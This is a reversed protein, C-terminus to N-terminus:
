AVAEQQRESRVEKVRGDELIVTNGGIPRVTEILVDCKHEKALRRVHAFSEDDLLSGDRIWILRLGPNRFLCYAFGACVKQATSAQEWPSGLLRIEGDGFELGPIPLSAKAIAAERAARRADMAETLAVAQADLDDAASVHSARETAKAVNVNAINAAEIQAAIAATDIPDPLTEANDLQAQLEDAQKTAEDAFAQGQVFLLQVADAATKTTEVKQAVLADIQTQIQTLRRDREVEIRATEDAIKAGIRQPDADARLEAIKVAQAERRAVRSERQTNLTGAERLQRVLAQVDIAAAPTDSPVVILDAAARSRAADRKVNTREAFDAADDRMSKAFDVDPILEQFAKFMKKGDLRLFDTPDLHHEGVLDDLMEQTAPSPKEGPPQFQIRTVCKGHKDFAIHRIVDMEGIRGSIRCKQEGNRIPEAPAKSMGDILVSIADLVTSKGAGNPGSIEVVGAIEIKVISLKKFNEAELHSIRNM